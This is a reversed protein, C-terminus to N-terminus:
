PIFLTPQNTTQVWLTSQNNSQVWLTPQKTTQKITGTCETLLAVSAEYATAAQLTMKVTVPSSQDDTNENHTYGDNHNHNFNHDNNNHDDKNHNSFGALKKTIDLQTVIDPYLSLLTTLQIRLADDKTIHNSRPSSGTLDETVDMPLHFKNRLQQIIAQQLNVTETASETRGEIVSEGTPDISIESADLVQLDRLVQPTIISFLQLDHHFVSSVSTDSVHVLDTQYRLMSARQQLQELAIYSNQIANKNCLLRNALVNLVETWPRHHDLSLTDVLRHSPVFVTSLLLVLAIFLGALATVHTWMREDTLSEM